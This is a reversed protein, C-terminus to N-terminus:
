NVHLVTGMGAEAHELVHCHTLWHGRDTAILGIEITENGKVLVTDRFFNETVSKGNRTLVKFFQGHLHMPHLRSSENVLRIKYFQRHHLNLVKHEGFAKNNLTWEIGFDGGRRANLRYEKDVPLQHAKSWEPVKLNAPASFGSTNVREEGVVIKALLFPNNTLNDQVPITTGKLSPRITLDLDIRNGPALLDGNFDIPASALMGDVAIVKASLIGLFPRFIRANAVNVLRLRIREGPKVSIEPNTKGNVTVMNGWRGDHMLDHHTNFHPYIQFDQNIAWDDIIWVLDKDYQPEKPNEVILTGYLGREIQESTRVHPHFWFTGADKPTFEYAFSEGPPIPPQTIGPVGDMANPVRVGHWHITTSQPLSNKFNVKLTDGLQIRLEPGPVKGNYTWVKTKKGAVFEIEGPIAEIFFERIKGNPIIENKYADHFETVLESKVKLASIDKTSEAFIPKGFLTGMALVWFIMIIINNKM